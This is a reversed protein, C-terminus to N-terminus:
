LHQGYHAAFAVLDSLGIAGNGDMDAVPNWNSDTPTSGYARALAVLDELGVKGNHNFDGFLRISQLIISSSSNDFIASDAIGSTYDEFGPKSAFITYFDPKVTFVSYGNSDTVSSDVITGNAWDYIRFITGPIPNMSNSDLSQYQRECIANVPETFTWVRESKDEIPALAGSAQSYWWHDVGGELDRNVGKAQSQGTDSWTINLDFHVDNPVSTLTSGSITVESKSRKQGAKCSLTFNGGCYKGDQTFYGAADAAVKPDQHLCFKQDPIKVASTANPIPHNVYFCLSLSLLTLLAAVRIVDKRRIVGGGLASEEGL